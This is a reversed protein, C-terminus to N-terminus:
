APTAVQGLPNLSELRLRSPREVVIVEKVRGSGRPSSLKLSGVARLGHRAEGAAEVSALWGQVIAEEGQVPEFEARDFWHLCGSTGLLTLVLVGRLVRKM